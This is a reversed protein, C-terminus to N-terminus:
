KKCTIIKLIVKYIKVGDSVGDHFGFHNGQFADVFDHNLVVHSHGWHDHIPLFILNQKRSHFEYYHTHIHTIEPKLFHIVLRIFSGSNSIHLFHEHSQDHM